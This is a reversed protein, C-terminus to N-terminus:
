LSSTRNELAKGITQRDTYELLGGVPIGHAIRTVRIGVPHILKSLYLSTAEGEVSPNLALIVESVTGLRQLLEKIKLQEPGVGDLPSLVGHLVHYHGQFKQSGEIALVDAPKEVVCIIDANRKSDACFHCISSESFTFCQECLRIKNKAQLLAQTLNQVEQSSSKILHYALRIATKEGIGPLKSLEAVLKYVPDSM